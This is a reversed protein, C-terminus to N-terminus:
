LNIDASGVYQNIM